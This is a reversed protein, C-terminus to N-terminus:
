NRKIFWKFSSKRVNRGLIDGTVVNRMITTMKGNSGGIFSWELNEKFAIEGNEFNPTQGIIPDIQAFVISDKMVTIFSAEALHKIRGSRSGWAIRIEEGSEVAKILSNLDGSISNGLDDNHYILEWNDQSFSQYSTVLFLLISIKIM